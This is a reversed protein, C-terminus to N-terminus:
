NLVIRAGRRTLPERERVGEREMTSVRLAFCYQSPAKLMKKFNIGVYLEYDIFQVLQVLHKATQVRVCVCM